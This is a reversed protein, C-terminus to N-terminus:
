EELDCVENKSGEEDLYPAERNSSRSDGNKWQCAKRNSRRRGLDMDFVSLNGM